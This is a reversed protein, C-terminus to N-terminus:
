NFNFTWERTWDDNADKFAGVYDVVTFFSDNVATGGLTLPSGSSPLYGNLLPDSAQNESQSLFWDSTTFTAGEGDTFNSSCNVFSNQMTLGGSLSGPSGANVFTSASDIQICAPSGTVVSNWIKAGTGRRLLIGQTAGTDNRGIITFNSLVPQSRPLSDHNQENNDAEIGRDGIGASQKVLVFQARGQFGSTWDFGDDRNDTLVLHKMQVNGGFMEVGDDLGAHIHVYDILTGSGVGMLTLGNLEEDPRVAFGAFLIQIYKVVGSNETPNNGGYFESTIAEFPAECLPVGENCGNIPANGAILLGGWEGPSQQQPGSMVIPNDPTGEAMIKSGRRIFLYDSGSQGFIKTGPNITLTTNQTNDGGVYVGGALIWNINKTLIADTSIEGSLVCSGATPGPSAFSPCNQFANNVLQDITFSLPNSGQVLKLKAYFTEAGVTVSAVHVSGTDSDFVNRQGTTASIPNAAILQLGDGVLQLQANYFASSGGSLVEVVPLDVIGSTPDFTATAHVNLAATCLLAASVAKLNEKFYKLKFM